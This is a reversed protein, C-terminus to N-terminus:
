EGEEEEDTELPLTPPKGLDERRRALMEALAKDRAKQAEKLKNSARARESGAIAVKGQLDDVVDVLQELTLNILAPDRVLRAKQGNVEVTTASNQPSKSCFNEHVNETVPPQSVAGCEDCIVATDTASM